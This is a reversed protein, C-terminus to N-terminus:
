FESHLLADLNTRVDFGQEACSIFVEVHQFITKVDVDIQAGLVNLEFTRGAIDSACLLYKRVVILQMPGSELKLIAIQVAHQAHQNAIGIDSQATQGFGSALTRKAPTRHLWLTRILPPIQFGDLTVVHYEADS